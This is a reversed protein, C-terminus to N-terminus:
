PVVSRTARRRPAPSRAPAASAPTCAIHSARRRRRAARRQENATPASGSPRSSPPTPRRARSRWSRGARDAGDPHREHEDREGGLAHLAAQGVVARREDDQEGRVSTLATSSTTNTNPSSRPTGPDAHDVTIAWTSAAAANATTIRRWRADAGDCASRAPRPHRGSSVAPRVQQQADSRHEGHDDARRREGGAGVFRREGRVLDGDADESEDGQSEVGEGDGGLGDDGLLESGPVARRRGVGPVPHDAQRDPASARDGDDHQRAGRQDGASNVESPATILRAVPANTTIPRISTGAPM